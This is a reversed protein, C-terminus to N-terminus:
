VWDEGRKGELSVTQMLFSPLKGIPFRCLLLTAGSLISIHDSFKKKTQAEPNPTFQPFLKETLISPLTSDLLSLPPVRSVHPRLAMLCESVLVTSINDDDKDLEASLRSCLSAPNGREFENTLITWKTAKKSVGAPNTSYLQHIVLIVFITFLIQFGLKKPFSPHRPVFFLIRGASEYEIVLIPIFVLLILFLPTPTGSPSLFLSGQAKKKLHEYERRGGAM